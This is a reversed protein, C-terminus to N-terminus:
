MVNVSDQCSKARSVSPWRKQLQGQELLFAKKLTSLINVDRQCINVPGPESRMMRQELLGKERLIADSDRIRSDKILYFHM